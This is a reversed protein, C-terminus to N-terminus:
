FIELAEEIEMWRDEVEGLKAKLSNVDKELEALESWGTGDNAAKEYEKEAKEIETGIKVMSLDLKKREREMNIREKTNAKKYTKASDDAGGAAERSEKKGGGGMAEAELERKAMYEGINGEFCKVIGGGEFAFITSVAKSLFYVDHSVVVVVGNFNEILEEVVGMTTMDLDNSPEDLLLVNPNTAIM